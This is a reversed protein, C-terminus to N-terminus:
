LAARAAPDIEEALAWLLATADHGESSGVLSRKMREVLKLLVEGLQSAADPVAGQRRALDALIERADEEDCITFDAPIGLADAEHRLVQTCFGHFTRVTVEGARGGLLTLIRDRMERAARNTFSLCLIHAPEVGARIAHAARHAIVTTKGTGVPALVLLPGRLHAIAERQQDNLDEALVVPAPSVFAWPPGDPVSFNVPSTRSPPPAEHM